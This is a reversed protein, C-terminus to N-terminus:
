PTGVSDAPPEGQADESAGDAGDAPPNDAAPPNDDAPQKTEPAAAVKAPAASKLKDLEKKASELQAALETDDPSAASLAERLQVAKDYSAMAADTDKDAKQAAGMLVCLDAMRAQYKPNGPQSALLSELHGRAQSMQGLGEKRRGARAQFAGSYGFLNALEERPGIAEPFERNVHAYQGIATNLGFLLKIGHQGMEKMSAGRLAIWEEPAAIGMASEELSPYTDPDVKANRLKDITIMGATLAPISKNSGMKAYLGAVRFQAAAVEPHPVEDGLHAQSYGEYYALAPQLLEDRAKAMRFGKLEESHAIGEALEGVAASARALDAEARERAKTARLAVMTSGAALTGL